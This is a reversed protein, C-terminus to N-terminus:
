SDGTRTGNNSYCRWYGFRIGSSNYYYNICLDAGIEILTGNAKTKDSKFWCAFSIEKGSWFSKDTTSHFDDDTGDFSYCGGIKGSSNYTPADAKSFINDLLGISKFDNEKNLPLWIQLAM